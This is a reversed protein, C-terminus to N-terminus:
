AFDLYEYKEHSTIRLHEKRVHKKLILESKASFKCTPCNHGKDTLHIRKM